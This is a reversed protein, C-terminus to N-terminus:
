IKAILKNMYKIANNYDTFIESRSSKPNGTWSGFVTDVHIVLFLQYDLKILIIYDYLRCENGDREKKYEKLIEM